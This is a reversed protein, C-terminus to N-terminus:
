SYLLFRFSGGFLSSLTATDCLLLLSSVIMRLLSVEEERHEIQLLAMRTLSLEARKILSMVILSLEVDDDHQNYSRPDTDSASSSTLSQSSASIRSTWSTVMMVMLSLEAEEHQQELHTRLDADSASSSPLASL